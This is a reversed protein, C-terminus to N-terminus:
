VAVEELAHLELEFGEPADCALALVHEELVVQRVPYRARGLEIVLRGPAGVALLRCHPLGAVGVGALKLVSEKASWLALEAPVRPTTVSALLAQEHDDLYARAAERRPRAIPEVDVGVPARAVVGAVLGRTNTTSWFVEGQGTAMPLPAGERDRAFPDRRNPLELASLAASRVLAERGLRRGLTVGARGRPRPPRPTVVPHLIM